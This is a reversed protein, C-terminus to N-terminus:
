HKMLTVFQPGYYGSLIRLTIFLILELTVPSGSSLTAFKFHKEEDYGCYSTKFNMIAQHIAYFDERSLRFQRQFISDSWLQIFDIVTKHDRKNNWKRKRMFKKTKKPLVVSGLGSIMVLQVFIQQNYLLLIAMMVHMRKLNSRNSVNETTSCRTIVGDLDDDHDDYNM